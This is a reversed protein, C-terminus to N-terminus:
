SLPLYPGSVPRTVDQIWESWSGVYLKSGKLGALDAAFLNHCATVGSGCMHVLDDSKHNGLLTILGSRVEQVTKFRGEATLNMSYPYNLSGPIHGAVRDLPEVMADFRERARADALVIENSSLGKVVEATSLVLDSRIDFVAVPQMPPNVAGSELMYGATSWAAVGGDLMAAHHHGFYKMLWWLRAAIAGGVDDYAILLSGPRWGARGLFSAFKVPDPLPHRGSSATVPGSLDKDLHAYVAAPIHSKLYAEFGANHNTLDFRCDVIVCEAMKHLERLQTATLLIKETM